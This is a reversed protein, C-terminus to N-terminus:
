LWTDTKDIFDKLNLNICFLIMFLIVLGIAILCKPMSRSREVGRIMTWLQVYPKTPNELSKLLSHNKKLSISELMHQAQIDTHIHSHQLISCLILSLNKALQFCWPSCDNLSHEKGKKCNLQWNHLLLQIAQKVSLNRICYSYLQAFFICVYVCVFM